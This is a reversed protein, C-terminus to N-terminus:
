RLLKEEPQQLLIIQPRHNLFFTAKAGEKQHREFPEEGLLPIPVMSLFATPTLCEDDQVGFQRFPAVDALAGLVQRRIADIFPAPREVSSSCVM